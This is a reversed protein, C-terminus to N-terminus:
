KKTFPTFAGHNKDDINLTPKPFALFSQNEACCFVSNKTCVYIKSKHQAWFIKFKRPSQSM